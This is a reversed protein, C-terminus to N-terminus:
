KEQEGPKEKQKTHNRNGTKSKSPKSVVSQIETDKATVMKNEFKYTVQKM